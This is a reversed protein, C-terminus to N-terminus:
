KRCNIIISANNIYVNNVRTDKKYHSKLDKMLDKYVEDTVVYLIKVNILRGIPM